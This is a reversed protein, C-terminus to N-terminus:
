AFAPANPVHLAMSRELAHSRSAIQDVANSVHFDDVVVIWHSGGLELSTDAKLRFRVSESPLAQRGRGPCNVRPELQRLTGLATRAANSTM